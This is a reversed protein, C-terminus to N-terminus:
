RWWVFFFALFVLAFLALWARWGLGTRKAMTMMRTYTGKLRHGTNEFANEMEQLFKNDSRVREGIDISVEKLLKIKASLGEMQQDNQSEMDSLVQSSYQGKSNPTATRYPTGLGSAPNPTPPTGRGYNPGFLQRRDRQQSQASYRSSM